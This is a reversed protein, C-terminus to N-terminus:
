TCASKAGNSHDAGNSSTNRRSLPSLGVERLWAILVGECGGGRDTGQGISSMRQYASLGGLEEMEREVERLGEQAGDLSQLQARRKLLVHFRRIIKRTHAPTSSTPKLPTSSTIPIRRKRVKPM